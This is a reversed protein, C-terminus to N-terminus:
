LTVQIGEFTTVLVIFSLDLKNIHMMTFRHVKHEGPVMSLLTSNKYNGVSDWWSEKLRSVFQFLYIKEDVYM